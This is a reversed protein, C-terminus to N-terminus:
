VVSEEIKQIKFLRQKYRHIVMVGYDVMENLRVSAIYEITSASQKTLLAQWLLKQEAEAQLTRKLYSQLDDEIKSRLDTIEQTRHGTALMLKLTLKKQEVLQSRISRLWRIAMRRAMYESALSHDCRKLRLYLAILIDGLEIRFYYSAHAAILVAAVLVAWWSISDAVTPIM